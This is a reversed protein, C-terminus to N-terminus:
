LYKNITSTLSNESQVGVMRTVERGDKFIVITPISTVGLSQASKPCNDVDLKGINAKGAFSVALKEIIPTMMKCPGCWDAYLDVVSVGTEIAETFNEDTFSFTNNSM